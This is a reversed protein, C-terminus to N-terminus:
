LRSSSSDRRWMALMQPMRNFHCKAFLAKKWTQYDPWLGSQKPDHMCFGGINRMIDTRFVMTSTGLCNRCQNILCDYIAMHSEVDADFENDPRYNLDWMEAPPEDGFFEHMRGSLFDVYPYEMLYKRQLEIREPMIIDDIDWMATFETFIDEIGANVADGFVQQGQRVTVSRAGENRLRSYVLKKTDEIAEQDYWNHLVLKVYFDLDTQQNIQDIWPNIWNRHKPHCCTLVTVDPKM